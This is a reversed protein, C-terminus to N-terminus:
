DEKDLHKLAYECCQQVLNNLSVGQEQAIIQLEQVLKAPLRFTKNIMEPKEVKFM